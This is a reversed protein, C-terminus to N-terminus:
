RRGGRGRAAGGLGGKVCLANGGPLFGDDFVADQVGQEVVQAGGGLSAALAGAVGALAAVGSGDGDGRVAEVQLGAFGGLLFDEALDAGTKVDRLEVAAVRSGVGDGAIEGELAGAVEDLVALQVRATRPKVM